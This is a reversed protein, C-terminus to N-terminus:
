IIAYYSLRGTNKCSELMVFEHEIPFSSEFYYRTAAVLSISFECLFSACISSGLFSLPLFLAVLPVLSHWWILLIQFPLSLLALALSWFCDCQWRFPLFVVHLQWVVMASYVTQITKNRNMYVTTKAHWSIYSTVKHRWLPVKFMLIFCYPHYIPEHLISVSQFAGELASCRSDILQLIPFMMVPYTFFLSFCLCSKVLMAFDLGGTRPLNM